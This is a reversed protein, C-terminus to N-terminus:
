SHSIHWTNGTITTSWGNSKLITELSSKDTKPFCTLRAQTLSINHLKFSGTKQSLLKQFALWDDFTKYDVTMELSPFHTAPSPPVDSAKTQSALSRLGAEQFEIAYVAKYTNATAKERKVLISTVLPLLDGQSAKELGPLTNIAQFAQAYAEGLAQERAEVASPATVTIQVDDVVYAYAPICCFLTFLFNSRMTILPRHNPEYIVALM